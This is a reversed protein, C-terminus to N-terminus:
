LFCKLVNHLFLAKQLPKRASVKIYTADKRFGGNAFFIGGILFKLTFLM